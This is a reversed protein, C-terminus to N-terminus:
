AAQLVGVKAPRLQVFLTTGIGLESELWIDGGLREIIKKSLSLGLGVGEYQSTAHLKTFVKFVEKQNEKAIGIGNDQISILPLGNEQTKSSIKIHLQEDQKRFKIANNILNSFVQFLLSEQGECTPLDGSLSITAQSEQINADLSQVVAQFIGDLDIPKTKIEKHSMSSYQLLGTILKDLTECGSLIFDFFAADKPKILDRYRRNIIKSFSSITRLPAKLDHAAAAAFQQLNVNSEELKELSDNLAKEREELATKQYKLAENLRFFRYSLFALVLALIGVLLLILRTQRTNEQEIKIEFAKQSLETEYAYKDELSTLLKDNQQQKMSDSLAYHKELLDYAKNSKGTAKYYEAYAKYLDAQELELDKQAAFAEAAKFYKFAEKYQKEKLAIQGLKINADAQGKVNDLTKFLKDTAQFYFKSSDMNDLYLYIVGKMRLGMGLSLKKNYFQAEDIGKNILELAKKYHGEKMELSAIKQHTMSADIDNDLSEINKLVRKYAARAKDLENLGIYTGLIGSNTREMKFYVAQATQKGCTDLMGEYVVLAKNYFNLGQYYLSQEYYCNGINNYTSGILLAEKTKKYIDLNRQFVEIAKPYNNRIAYSIALLNLAKGQGVIDNHSECFDYLIQAFYEASDPQNFLYVKWIYQNFSNGRAEVSNEVNVWDQYLSDQIHQLDNGQSYGFSSLLSCFIIGLIISRFM